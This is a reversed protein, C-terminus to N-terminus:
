SQVRVREFHRKDEHCRVERPLASKAYKRCVWSPEGNENYLPSVGVENPLVKLISQIASCTLGSNEPRIRSKVGHDNMVCARGSGSASAAGSGCAAGGVALLCTISIALARPYRQM